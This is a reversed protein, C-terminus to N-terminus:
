DVLRMSLDVARVHKTLGGVSIRDVGTEAIARVNDLRIGGSAELEARGACMRVAARLGDLDFNDLLILAAGAGLAEDLQELTEVEIQLTPALGSALAVARAADLAPRVGGAAAIHNEKILIGDYLGIRQNEGGGCKVAYKLAIRLGPLTKRTDVIKAQTGAVAAVYDRTATAVGSLTQLFNLAPREASLLARTNGEIECLTQGAQIDEADQAQWLIRCTPDLTRFCRSFWAAGAMVADQRTIVRARARATEPLLRATLDGTLGEPLPAGLDEELATRVNADIIHDPPQM